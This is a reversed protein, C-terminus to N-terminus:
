TSRIRKGQRRLLPRKLYREDHRVLVKHVTDLALKLSHERLLEIRLRKVGLRHERRLGLILQRRPQSCRATRHITRAGAATTCAPRVRAKTAAGGNACPRGRSGAAGASWAPM